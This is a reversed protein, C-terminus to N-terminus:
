ASAGSHALTDRQVLSEATFRDTILVNIWRGSLAGHIAEVKRQGGAIGVSRRVQRLQELRMGIVRQDLMTIVPGGDADFFRLCIDGVAGRDQLSHLESQSFVNGSSALLRSPELAGIGVLALTVGEFLGLASRVYPDDVLVRRAEASNAVGPVALFIAEGHVLRAFRQTLQTAHIEAAPNGVGGLIQVVRAQATRPLAHMANVMALLTASWSSIGVTEDQRLTTEVYFAAAAGVDRLIQEDDQVSDVVIAQKLGYTAQLREELAPYIGYPVNITTRVINEDFARKLLRSVTAQSIDLQAAIEPQRVGQEHYLRAVKVLLRLDDVRAM